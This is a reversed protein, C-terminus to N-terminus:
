GWFCASPDLEVEELFEENTDVQPLLPYSHWKLDQRM